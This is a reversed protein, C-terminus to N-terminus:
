IGIIFVRLMGALKVQDNKVLLINQPKIDRHAMGKGHCYAVASIIGKFLSKAKQEQMVGYRIREFLDGREAVEMVIYLFQDQEFHELMCLINDHNERSLESWLEIEKPLFKNIYSNNDTMVIIKVAVDRTYKKSYGKKVLSFAGSGLLKLQNIGLTKINHIHKSDSGFKEMLQQVSETTKKYLDNEEQEDDSSYDKIHEVKMVEGRWVNRFFNFVKLMTWRIDFTAIM